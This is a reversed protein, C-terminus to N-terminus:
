SPSLFLPAPQPAPGIRLLLHRNKDIPPNEPPPLKQTPARVVVIDTLVTVSLTASTFSGHASLENIVAIISSPSRAISLCAV